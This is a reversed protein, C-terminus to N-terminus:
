ILLDQYQPHKKIYAVAYSCIPKVQWSNKKATDLAFQTIKGALGQGGLEKPVVTHHIEMVNNVLKYDIYSTLNNIVLEFRNQDQLHQIDQTM